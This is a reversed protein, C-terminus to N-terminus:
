AIGGLFARVEGASHVVATRCGASELERLRHQQIRTPECGPRKFEMWVAQGDKIALVDPIGTPM